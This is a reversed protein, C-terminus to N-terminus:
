KLLIKHKSKFGCIIQFFSPCLRLGFSTQRWGPQFFPLTFELRGLVHGLRHRKRMEGRCFPQVCLQKKGATLFSQDTPWLINFYHKLM